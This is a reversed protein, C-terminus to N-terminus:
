QKLVLSRELGDWVWEGARLIERRGGTGDNKIVFRITGCGNLKPPVTITTTEVTRAVQVELTDAFCTVIRGSVINLTPREGSEDLTIYGPASVKDPTNYAQNREPTYYALYEWHQAFAPAAFFIGLSIVSALANKISVARRSRNAAAILQM